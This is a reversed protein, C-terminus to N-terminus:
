HDFAQRFQCSRRGLEYDGSAGVSANGEEFFIYSGNKHMVKWMQKPNDRLWKSITQLSVNEREIAGIEILHKGIPYYPFGNQAAYGVLHTKEGIKVLGSGQIHMFFLGIPDDVWFIESGALLSSNTEIAARDYRYPVVRGNETLLGSASKRTGGFAALDVTVFNQPKKYIPYPFKKTKKYSGNLIPIYYGTFLGERSKGDSIVEYPQFRREFFLRASVRDHLDATKETAKADECVQKWLETEGVARCSKIFAALAESHDDMKWGAIAQWTTPRYIASTNKAGIVAEDAGDTEHALKAACGALLGACLFARALFAAIYATKM